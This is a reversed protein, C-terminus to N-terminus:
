PALSGRQPLVPATRQEKTWIRAALTSIAALVLTLASITKILELQM